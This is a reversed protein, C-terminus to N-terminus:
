SFQALWAPRKELLEGYIRICHELWGRIFDCSPTTRAAAEQHCGGACLYRAWCRQCDVQAEVHRTQLFERRRASDLGSNDGMHYAQDGIARHCAFWNGDSSVSFYGGGASCPFPMSFGRKLQKLAIALNSLRISEGKLAANSQESALSSLEKLYQPWDGATFASPSELPQRLPSFGVEPFGLETLVAFRERLLLNSRLVTSRAAVRAMGPSELLPTIATRLAAFSSKGTRMPRQLDQIEAGGDISITVAFRNRRFMSIDDASLMTGNTTVSFRVDRRTSNGLDSAYTVVRHILARNLFPEGGLFGITIPGTEALAFLRDVAARAVDWSMSSSQKGGFGGQEAYCYSCGLNCTHSVNLSISQPTPLPVQDLPQESGVEHTFERVLDVAWSEGNALAATFRKEVGFIRSHPVVLLYDYGESEFIRHLPAGPAAPTITPLTSV